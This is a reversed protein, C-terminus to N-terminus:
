QNLLNVIEMQVTVAEQEELTRLTEVNNDCYTIEVSFRVASKGSSEKVEVSRVNNLSIAKTYNKNINSYNYFKM